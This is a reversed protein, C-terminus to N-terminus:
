ASCRKGLTCAGDSTLASAHICPCPSVCASLTRPNLLYVYLLQEVCPLQEEDLPGPVDVVLRTSTRAASCARLSRGAVCQLQDKLALVMFWAVAAKFDRM